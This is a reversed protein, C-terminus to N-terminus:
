GLVLYTNVTCSVKDPNKMKNRKEQKASYAAGRFLRWLTPARMRIEEGMENFNISTLTEEKLDEGSPSRLLAAVGKMERERVNDVCKEAFAEMSSKAGKPRSKKSKKSRPPKWWRELIGPLEKSHLLSSRAYQISRAESPTGTGHSEDGGWSLADLFIPLDLGLIDMTYLVKTVKASMTEAPNGTSEKHRKEESFRQRRKETHEHYPVPGRVDEAAEDMDGDVDMAEPDYDSDDDDDSSCESDSDPDERALPDESDDHLFLNGWDPESTEPTSEQALPRDM